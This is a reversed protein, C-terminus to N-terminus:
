EEGGAILQVWSERCALWEERRCPFGGFFCRDIVSTLLGVTERLPLTPPFRSLYEGHTDSPKLPIDKKEEIWRSVQRFLRRIADLYKSGSALLDAEELATKGEM